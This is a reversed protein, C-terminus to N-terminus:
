KIHLKAASAAKAVACIGGTGVGIGDRGNWSSGAGESCGKSIPVFEYSSWDKLSRWNPACISEVKSCPTDLDANLGTGVKAGADQM